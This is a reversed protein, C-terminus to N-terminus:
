IKARNEFLGTVSQNIIIIERKGVTNKNIAMNGANKKGNIFELNGSIKGDCRLFNLIENVTKIKEYLNDSKRFIDCNSSLTEKPNAPRKKYINSLKYLLVDYLKDVKEHSLKDFKESIRPEEKDYNKKNKVEYKELYKEIARLTKANEEDLKLQIAGKFSLKENNEGRIRMPFGNVLMLTNKKIKPVIIEVNKDKLGKVNECYDKFANTNRKLRNAIYIPVGIINKVRKGKKDDFEIQAFYSTNAGSYGGYRKIDLGSKLKINLNENSKSIPNAGFLEGKDCYTYETYLLNDQKMIKRVRDITGGYGVHSQDEDEVCKEWIVKDGRKVDFNFIKNLSYEENKNKKFWTIPNATFKANYVDGVVINLYADKGHHYDNIRRSKLENLPRKRFDSVLPGKVYVIETDENIRKLLEAVAKSSQRTEVIQRNIFGALEEETFDGKRTLRDYKKKSIFGGKLLSKWKGIMKKQIEEKLVDKGKRSNVTKDVLVLNDISDDKIKSQPYIHDRDWKSNKKMLEDLDIEKDTYMCRGWQTFYLYLKMSNLDREELNELKESLHRVDKECNKYLKQLTTKRSVTRKGKKGGGRAMEIFIKEPPCGMVKKIEESIQIAQWIARKTAPSVYMNDVLEEYSVREVKETLKNNEKEIEETFTFKGSLLQMLNNNTQWMAQILSFTEGTERDIGEISKLFKKSFNGWGSYRLGCVEKLQKETLRKPYEKEIVDKIMKADDGYITIWKIINEVINQVDDNEMKEGFIKKFDIYPKLSTHFDKDFGSLDEIKLGPVKTKLYELVAKGTVKVKRQFLETYIGQKTKIDVKNGKVRLNNLENLVMYKSYLLSNKPLVDEGILYTCKNTMRRIFAENSKEYDVIDEINWPYIRGNEGEKRVMWCNSGQKKHRDSLPGVFYPIRFEFISIIKEKNSIGDSDKESLFPMYKEANELIKILEFKHVQNPLVGNAKSRQLPLLDEINETKIFELAIDYGYGDEKIHELKKKISTVFDKDKKENSESKKAKVKSVGIYSSYSEESEDVFFSKWVEKGFNKYIISKLKKLNNKHKEYQKVKANSIYEEGQLIGALVRWDYVGKILDIIHILDPIENEMEPRVNEEYNSEAFSFSGKTLSKKELKFLKEVDGKIGVIFNFIIKTIDKQRGIEEKSLLSNIKVLVGKEQESKAELSGNTIEIIEDVKEKKTKNKDTLIGKIEAKADENPEVQWELDEKLAESLKDFVVNFDKAKGLNGEILFHGRNKIIHHIALYVLRPDHPEKNEILEKRLHYITPFQAYYNVDSYDKGAFLPHKEKISKDEFHLRSENLRVFFSEDIKSIEEKFIEQLLKIRQRRRKLRRRSSRKLRRDSATNAAEFLRIGWMDKGRFRCLNYEEDTVAWGVSNTGIDLGLYYKKSM